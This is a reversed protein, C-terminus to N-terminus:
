DLRAALRRELTRIRSLLEDGDVYCGQLRRRGSAPDFAGRGHLVRRNDFAILEGPALRLRVEFRPDRTLAAFKRHARYLDDMLEAPASGLGMVGMNFRIAELEGGANLVIAPSLFHMDQGYDRFRFELPVRALLDFAAGDERRLTEAVSFGDVFVSEGGDASNDLCLLFQYGPSNRYYPLDVHAPTALATYANSNPPARSVVKFQVGFNTRRPYAIRRALSVVVKPDVPAERMLAVGHDRLMYLWRLLGPADAVVEEYTVTPLGEALEAAWLIVGPESEARAEASCGYQRLWAPDYESEHGDGRWTVRLAGAETIDVAVPDLDDPVSLLDFTREYTLPHWCAACGCNDRLWM